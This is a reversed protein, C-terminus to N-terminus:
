PAHGRPLTITRSELKRTAKWLAPSTWWAAASCRMFLSRSPSHPGARSRSYTKRSTTVTSRIRNSRGVAALTPSVSRRARSTSNTGQESTKRWAKSTKRRSRPVVRLKASAAIVATARRCGGPNTAVKSASKSPRSATVTTAQPRDSAAKRVPYPWGIKISAEPVLRNAGYVSSGVPIETDGNIAGKNPRGTLPIQEVLELSRTDVVDLTAESENTCFFYLGDPHAFLNHPRPCGEIVGVVENRIPDIIHQVDGANNSQLIRVAVGDYSDLRTVHQAALPSGLFSIGLLLLFFRTTSTASM